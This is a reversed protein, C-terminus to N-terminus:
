DFKKKAYIPIASAIPIVSIHNIFNDILVNHKQPNNSNEAGFRLELVTIESIYCNETGKKLIIDPISYKNRFFFVCINTDLLYKM